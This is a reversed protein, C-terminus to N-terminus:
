PRVRVRRGDRSVRGECLARLVRPYLLHEQALIRARLSEVTDDDHIPVAVQAIIPGSDTGEDVFHVTAGTMKVGHEWAQRQADVGPFAPLLAPHINVVRDPYARLFHPTLVRMFGALVVLEVGHAALAAILQEEFLARTPFARHDVVATAVAAAGARELATVGPRNSVVVVVEGGGLEGRAQAELIAGLNTGAGSVLVGLRM